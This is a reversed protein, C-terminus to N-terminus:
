EKEKVTYVTNPLLQTSLLGCIRKINKMSKAIFKDSYGFRMQAYNSMSIESIDSIVITPKRESTCKMDMACQIFNWVTNNFTKTLDVNVIIVCNNLDVISLWTKISDLMNEYSYTSFKDVDLFYISNDVREHLLNENISGMLEFLDNEKQSNFVNCFKYM